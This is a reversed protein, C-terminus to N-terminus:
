GTCTVSATASRTVSGKSGNITCSL